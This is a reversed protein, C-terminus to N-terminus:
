GVAAAASTSTSACPISPLRSSLKLAATSSFHQLISPSIKLVSFVHKIHFYFLKM